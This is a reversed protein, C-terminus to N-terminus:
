ISSGLMNLHDRITKEIYPKLKDPTHAYEWIKNANEWKAPHDGKQAAVIMTSFALAFQEVYKKNADDEMNLEEFVLMGAEVDRAFKDDITDEIGQQIATCTGCRKTNHFYYVVVKDPIVKQTATGEETPETQAAGGSPDSANGCAVFFFLTAIIVVPHCKRFLRETMPNESERKIM